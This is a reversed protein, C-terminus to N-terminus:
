AAANAEDEAGTVDENADPAEEDADGDAPATRDQSQQEPTVALAGLMDAVREAPIDQIASSVWEALAQEAEWEERGQRAAEEMDAELEEESEYGLFRLFEEDTM